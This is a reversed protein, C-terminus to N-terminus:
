KKSFQKNRKEVEAFEIKGGDAAVKESNNKRSHFAAWVVFGSFSGILLVVVAITSSDM